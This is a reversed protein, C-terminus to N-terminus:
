AGNTGEGFNSQQLNGDDNWYQATTSPKSDRRVACAEESRISWKVISHDLLTAFFSWSRAAPLHNFKVALVRRASGTGLCRLTSRDGKARWCTVADNDTESRSVSNCNCSIRGLCVGSKAEAKDAWLSESGSTCHRALAM